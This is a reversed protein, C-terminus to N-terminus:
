NNKYNLNTVYNRSL